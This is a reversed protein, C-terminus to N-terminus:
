CIIDRLSKREVTDCAGQAYADLFLQLDADDILGDKNIDTWATLPSQPDHFAQMFAEVDSADVTDDKNFDAPCFYDLKTIDNRALHPLAAMIADFERLFAPSTWDIPTRAPTRRPETPAAPTQTTVSCGVPILAPSADRQTVLPDPTSPTPNSPASLGPWFAVAGVAAMGCTCALIRRRM